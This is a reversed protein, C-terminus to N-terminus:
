MCTFLYTGEDEATDENNPLVEEEEEEEEGSKSEKGPTEADEEGEDAGDGEVEDDSEEDSSDVTVMGTKKIRQKMLQKKRLKTAQDDTQIPTAEDEPHGVTFYTTGYNMLLQGGAAIDRM